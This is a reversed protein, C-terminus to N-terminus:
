IHYMSLYTAMLGQTSMLELSHVHLAFYHQHGLNPSMPLVM